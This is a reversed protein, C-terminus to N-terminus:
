THDTEAKNQAILLKTSVKLLKEAMLVYPSQFELPHIEPTLSTEM